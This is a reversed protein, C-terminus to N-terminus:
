WFSQYIAAHSGSSPITSLIRSPLNTMGSSDNYSELHHMREFLCVLIEAQSLPSSHVIITCLIFSKHQFSLLSILVSFVRLSSLSMDNYLLMWIAFFIERLLAYPAIPFLQNLYKSRITAVAIVVDPWNDIRHISFARLM